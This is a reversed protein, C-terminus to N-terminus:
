MDRQLKKRKPKTSSYVTAHYEEMTALTTNETVSKQYLLEM